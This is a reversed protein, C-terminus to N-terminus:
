ARNFQTRKINNNDTRTGPIVLGPNEDHAFYDFKAYVEVIQKLDEVAMFHQLTAGRKATEVLGRVLWAWATIRDANLNCDMQRFELTGRDNFLHSANIARPKDMPVVPNTKRMMFRVYDTPIRTSYHNDARGAIVAFVNELRKYIAFIQGVQNTTLDAAFVHIHTGATDNKEAEVDALKKCLDYLGNHKVRQIGGTTRYEASDCTACHSGGCHDPDSSGTECLDCDCEHYYCEDCDCECDGTGEYSRLSGDEGKEIGSSQLPEVGKADPVEVEFGWTRSTLGNSPLANIIDLLQAEVKEIDAFTNVKPGGKLIDVFPSGTEGDNGRTIRKHADEYRQVFQSYRRQGRMMDERTPYAHIIANLFAEINNVGNYERETPEIQMVYEDISVNYANLDEQIRHTFAMWAILPLRNAKAFDVVEKYRSENMHNEMVPGIDLMPGWMKIYDYGPIHASPLHMLIAKRDEMEINNITRVEDDPIPEAQGYKAVRYIHLAQLAKERFDVLSVYANQM